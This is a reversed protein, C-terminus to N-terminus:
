YPSTADAMDVSLMLQMRIPSLGDFAKTTLTGFVLFTLMRLSKILSVSDLRRLCTSAGSRVTQFTLAM